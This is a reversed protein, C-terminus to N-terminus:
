WGFTESDFTQLDFALQGFALQGFALQGFALQGFALQVFVLQGFTMLVFAQQGFALRGFTLRGFSKRSFSTSGIRCSADYHTASRGNPVVSSAKLSIITPLLSPVVSVNRALSSRKLVCFFINVSSHEIQSLFSHINGIKIMLFCQLM